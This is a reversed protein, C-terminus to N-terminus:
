GDKTPLTYVYFRDDRRWGTREYLAQAPQNDVATSLTLRVAGAERAHRVAAELLKEGVGQRRAQEAVFLDNLVFIRALSVSSFSPYLQTFGVAEGSSEAVFVVSEDAALRAAVFARAGRLDPVQKYFQRYRDFLPALADVDAAGARRVTVSVARREGQSSM